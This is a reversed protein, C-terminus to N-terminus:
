YPNMVTDLLKRETLYPKGALPFRQTVELRDTKFRFELGTRNVEPTRSGSVKAVTTKYSSIQGNNTRWSLLISDSPKLDFFGYGKTGGIGYRTGKEAPFRRDAVQLTVEEVITESTIDILGLTTTSLSETQLPACGQMAMALTAILLSALSWNRITKILRQM